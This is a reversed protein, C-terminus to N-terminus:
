IARISCWRATASAAAMSTTSTSCSYGCTRGRSQPDRQAAAFRRDIQRRRDLRAGRLAQLANGRCRCLRHRLPGAAPHRCQDPGIREACLRHPPGRHHHPRRCRRHDSLQHRRAPIQPTRRRLIEGLLDVSATAIYEDSSPLNECSVETIMAIITTATACRISVFRGVTARAESVAGGPRVGATRGPRPLRAGFDCTRLSSDTTHNANKRDRRRAEKPQM